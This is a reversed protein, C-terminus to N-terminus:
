KSDKLPLINVTVGKLPQTTWILLQTHVQEGKWAKTQWKSQLSGADPVSGKEYRIDASAFSVHLAPGTIVDWSSKNVPRPDPLDQYPFLSVQQAYSACALAM